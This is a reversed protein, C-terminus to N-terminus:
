RRGGLLDAASLPQEDEDDEDENPPDVAPPPPAATPAPPEDIPPTPAAAPTPPDVAQHEDERERPTFRRVYREELRVAERGDRTVRIGVDVSERDFSQGPGAWAQLHRTLTERLRGRRSHGVFLVERSERDRVFYVGCCGKADAIRRDYRGHKWPPFWVLRYRKKPATMPEIRRRLGGL